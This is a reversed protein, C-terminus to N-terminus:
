AGPEAGGSGAGGPEAHEPEAGRAAGSDVAEEVPEVADVQSVGSPAPDQPPLPDIPPPGPALFLLPPPSPPQATPSSVTTLYRSTLCSTRLPCFVARPPTTFSGVLRTLPSALSSAPFLVPPCSTRLNAASSL